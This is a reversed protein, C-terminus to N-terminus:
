PACDGGALAVACQGGVRGRRASRRLIQLEQESFKGGAHLRTLILEVGSVKEEPMCSRGAHRARRRDGRDFGDKQMVVTIHRAHGALAEDVSNDIVEQVLHNPRTTDTYM